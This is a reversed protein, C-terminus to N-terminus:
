AQPHMQPYIRAARRATDVFARTDGYLGSADRKWGENEYFESVVGVSSSADLFRAIGDIVPYSRGDASVLRDGESKLASRSEPCRLIEFPSM